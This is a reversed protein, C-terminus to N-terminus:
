LASIFWNLMNPCDDQMSLQNVQQVKSLFHPTGELDCQRCQEEIAKKLVDDPIPDPPCQHFAKDLIEKFM